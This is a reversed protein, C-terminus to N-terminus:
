KISDESFIANFDKSVYLITLVGAVILLFLIIMGISGTLKNKDKRILWYIVGILPLGCLIWFVLSAGAM